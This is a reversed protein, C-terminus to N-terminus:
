NYSPERQPYNGGRSKTNKVKDRALAACERAGEQVRYPLKVTDSPEVHRVVYPAVVHAAMWVGQYEQGDIDHKKGCKV